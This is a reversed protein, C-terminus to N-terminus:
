LRYWTENLAGTVWINGNSLLSLSISGFAFTNCAHSNTLCLDSMGWGGGLQFNGTGLHFYPQGNSLTGKGVWAYPLNAGVKLDLLCRIHQTEPQGVMHMQDLYASGCKKLEFPLQTYQTTGFSALYWRENVGGGYVDITQPAQTVPRSATMVLNQNFFGAGNEGNGHIDAMSGRFNVGGNFNDGAAYGVHRYTFSGASWRGEGYWSFSHDNVVKVCRIGAVQNISTDVVYYTLTHPGCTFDPALDAETTGLEEVTPQQFQADEELGGCGAGVVTCLATVLVARTFANGSM